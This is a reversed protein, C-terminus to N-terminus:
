AHNEKTLPPSTTAAGALQRRILDLIGATRISSGLPHIPHESLGASVAEQVDRLMPVYGFGEITRTERRPHRLADGIAGAHVTYTDSSWFPADISLWGGRGSLTASPELYDTMSAGLQAFRGDEYTFTVHATLDVGDTRLIGGSEIRDPVGLVALALTVPYIGQDLLTSSARDASWRRDDPGGFPLGFTARVGAVRGIVGDLVEALVAKYLPSFSMWMAEMAFRGARAAAESVARAQDENTALPKEVLVNKGAELARIALAAHTAHPTAIYVVTVAPDTLMEDLDAAEEFGFTRAFAAGRDQDRSTVSRLRAGDVRALDSAVWEAVAGTGVM